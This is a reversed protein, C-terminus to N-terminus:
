CFKVNLVVNIRLGVFNMGVPVSQLKCSVLIM